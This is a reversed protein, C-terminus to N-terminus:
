FSLTLKNILMYDNDVDDDYGRYYDGTLLYGVGLMYSLNNTIKYTGTLDIEWGYDKDKVYDTDIQDAKAYSVSLLIDTQATPKVGVRGQVFIANSMAKGVYDGSDNAIGGVWFGVNETNFMILCPNWDSGATSGGEKEDATSSDDGSLWALSAGAYVTGFNATADLFLDFMNLDIDKAGMPSTNDEWVLDGWIYRAEGQIDFIGVKAKFYPDLVYKKTLTGYGYLDPNGAKGQADREFAILLGVEGSAKATKFPYGVFVRYADYDRDTTYEFDAVASYSKDKEKAAVAGLIVPGAKTIFKIQGAPSMEGLNGFVTGWVYDPMYGVMFQGIPSTYDIYAVDFAINENEQRTQASMSSPAWSPANADWDSRAGGWIREMADFRTVLKLCPSVVFDTGVRLRQFYFATSHSQKYENDNELDTQNLYMGAAYFEAGVKVDVAFASVSFAM